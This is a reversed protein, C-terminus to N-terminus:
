VGAWDGGRRWTQVWPIGNIELFHDPSLFILSYFIFLLKMSSTSPIFVYHLLSQWKIVNQHIFVLSSFFLLSSIIHLLTYCDIWCESSYFLFFSPLFRIASLTVFVNVNQHVISVSHIDGCIQASIVAM